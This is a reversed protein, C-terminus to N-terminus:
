NKFLTRAFNEAMHARLSVRETRCIPCFRGQLKEKCPECVLHSASCMWIRVPPRMIEMCVPCELTERAAELNASSEDLDLKRIDKALQNTIEKLSALSQRDEEDKRELEAKLETNKRIKEEQAEIETNVKEMKDVCQRSINSRESTVALANAGTQAQQVLRRKEQIM